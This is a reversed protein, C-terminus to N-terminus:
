TQAIFIYAPLSTRVLKRPLAVQLTSTADKIEINKSTLTPLLGSYPAGGNNRLLQLSKSMQQEELGKKQIPSEARPTSLHRCLKRYTKGYSFNKMQQQQHISVREEEPEPATKSLELLIKAEREDLRLSRLNTQRCWASEETEHHGRQSHANNERERTMLDKDRQISSQLKSLLRLEHLIDHPFQLLVTKMSSRLAHGPPPSDLIVGTSLIAVEVGLASTMSFPNAKGRKGPKKSTNYFHSSAKTDHKREEKDFNPLNEALRILRCEGVILPPLTYM